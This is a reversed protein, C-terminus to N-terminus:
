APITAGMSEMAAKVRQRDFPKAYDITQQIRSHGLIMQVVDLPIGMVLLYNVCSGRSWRMSLESTVQAVQAVIKLNLNLVAKASDLTVEPLLPILHEGGAYRDIIVQAQPIVPLWQPEKTKIVRHLVGGDHLDTRRLKLVDSIRLGGLYLSLLWTDRALAPRGTLNVTAIRHVEEVTLNHPMGKVVKPVQRRFASTLPLGRLTCAVAYLNRFNSLRNRITNTHQGADELTRRFHVVDAASLEGMRVDPLAKSIWTLATRFVVRTGDAYGPGHEAVERLAEVMRDSAKRQCATWLEEATLEPRKLLLDIAREELAQLKRNYEAQRPHGIKVRHRGADWHKEMVHLGTSRRLRGNHNIDVYISREGTPLAKDSRLAITFAM